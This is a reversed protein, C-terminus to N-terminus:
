LKKLKKVAEFMIASMEKRKTKMKGEKLLRFLEERIMIGEPLNKFSVAQPDNQTQRMEEELLAIFSGVGEHGMSQLMRLEEIIRHQVQQARERQNAFLTKGHETLAYLKSRGQQTSTVHNNEQLSSLLPYVSGFSPKWGTTEYIAKVLQYGSRPNESLQQVVLMKLCGQNM